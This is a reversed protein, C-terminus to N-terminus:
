TQAERGADRVSLGSERIGVAYKAEVRALFDLFLSETRITNKLPLMNIFVGVTREVDPHTRGSSPTGVVIENQNSYKHLLVFYLALLVM